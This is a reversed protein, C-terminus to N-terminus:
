VTFRQRLHSYQTSHLTTCRYFFIDHPYQLIPGVGGLVEPAGVSERHAYPDGTPWLYSKEEAKYKPCIKRSPVRLAIPLTRRYALHLSCYCSHRLGVNYLSETIDEKGSSVMQGCTVFAIHCKGPSPKSHNSDCSDVDNFVSGASWWVHLQGAAHRPQALKLM